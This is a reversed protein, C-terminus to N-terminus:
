LSSTERGNGQVYLQVYFTSRLFISRLRCVGLTGNCMQLRYPLAIQCLKEKTIELMPQHNINDVTSYKARPM